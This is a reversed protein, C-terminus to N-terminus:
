AAMDIDLMPGFYPNTAANNVLVDVKGFHQVARAVLAKCDEEKGTHAAVPLVNGEGQETASLASAVATVGEIKRSAVVVKAGHAVFARAIAEGIGRSAGTVIAVKGDFSIRATM